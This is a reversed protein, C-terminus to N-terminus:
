ARSEDGSGAVTSTWWGTALKTVVSKGERSVQVLVNFDHGM